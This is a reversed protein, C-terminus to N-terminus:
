AEARKSCVIGEYCDFGGGPEGGFWAVVGAGTELVAAAEGLDVVDLGPIAGDPEATGRGSWLIGLIDAAVVFRGILARNLKPLRHPHQM